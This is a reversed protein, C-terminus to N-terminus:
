HTAHLDNPGPMAGIVGRTSANAEVLFALALSCSTRKVCCLHQQVPVVTHVVRLHKRDGHRTRLRVKVHHGGYYILQRLPAMFHHHRGHSSCVFRRSM